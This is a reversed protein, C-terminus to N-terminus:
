WGMSRWWGMGQGWHMGDGQGYWGWVKVGGDRSRQGGGGRSGVVGVGKDGM